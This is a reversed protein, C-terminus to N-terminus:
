LKGNNFLRILDAPVAAPTSYIKAKEKEVYKIVEKEQTIYEIRVDRKGISYGSYYAGVIAIALIVGYIAYKM